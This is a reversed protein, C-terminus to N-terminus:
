TPSTTPVPEERLDAVLETSHNVPSSMGNTGFLRKPPTQRPELIAGIKKLVMSSAPARGISSSQLAISM